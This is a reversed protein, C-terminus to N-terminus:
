PDVHQSLSLLNGFPDKFWAVKDGNPTTWIADEDQDDGLFGYREFTVGRSRLEAVHREINMVDWGFVTYNAPTFEPPVTLRIILSGSRFVLAFGDNRVFELGLVDEYFDRAVTFDRIAIFGVPNAIRLM